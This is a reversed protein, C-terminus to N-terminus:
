LCPQSAGTGRQIRTHKPSPRDARGIRKATSYAAAAEEETIFNSGLDYRKGDLVIRAQFNGSLTKSVGPPFLPKKKCRPPDITTRLLPQARPAAAVVVAGRQKRKPM